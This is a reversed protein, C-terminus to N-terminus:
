RGAMTFVVQVGLAARSETSSNASLCACVGKTRTDRVQHESGPGPTWSSNKVLLVAQPALTLRAALDLSGNGFKFFASTWCLQRTTTSFGDPYLELADCQPHRNCYTILDEQSGKRWCYKQVGGPCGCKLLGDIGLGKTTWVALCCDPYSAARCEKSFFRRAGSSLHCPQICPSTM